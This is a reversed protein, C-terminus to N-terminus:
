LEMISKLKYEILLPHKYYNEESYEDGNLCYVLEPNEFNHIRMWAPGGIRHLKLNCSINETEYWCYWSCDKRLEIHNPEENSISTVKRQKLFYFGDSTKVWGVYDTLDYTGEYIYEKPAPYSTRYNM